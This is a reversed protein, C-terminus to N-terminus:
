FFLRLTTTGITFSFMSCTLCYFKFSFQDNSFFNSFNLWTRTVKSAFIAFSIDLSTAMWILAVISFYLKCLFSSEINILSMLIEPYSRSNMLILCLWIVSYTSFANIVLWVTSSKIYLLSDPILSDTLAFDSNLKLLSQSLSSRSESSESFVVSLSWFWFYVIRSFAKLLTPKLRSPIAFSHM